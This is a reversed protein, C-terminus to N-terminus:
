RMRRAKKVLIVSEDERLRKAEKRKEVKEEQKLERKEEASEIVTCVLEKWADRDQALTVLEEYKEM